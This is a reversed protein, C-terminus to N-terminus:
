INKIIFQKVKEINNEIKDIEYLTLVKFGRDEAIKLKFIDLELYKHFSEKTIPHKWATLDQNPNPHWAQGHFEIIIKKSKICFDYLKFYKIENLIGSLFFENKGDEGYFLDNVDFNCQILFDIIPNFVKMSSKSAKGTWKLLRTDYGYKDTLTQRAKWHIEKYFNPNELLRLKFTDQKKKQVFELQSPNIIGNGYRNTFTNKIKQVVDKRAFVNTIQFKDFMKEEWEIRSISKKSFNHKTGCSELYSLEKLKWSCEKSCTVAGTKNHWENKCIVCIKFKRCDERNSLYLNKDKLFYKEAVGKLNYIRFCRECTYSRRKFEAIM